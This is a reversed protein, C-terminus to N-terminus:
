SKKKKKKKKGGKKGKKKKKGGKKAKKKKKTKGGNLSLCVQITILDDSQCNPLPHIPRGGILLQQHQSPIGDQNTIFSKLTHIDANSSDYLYKSKPTIIWYKMSSFSDVNGM